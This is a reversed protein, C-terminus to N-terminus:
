ASCNTIRRPPRSRSMRVTSTRTMRYSWGVRNTPHRRPTLRAPRATRAAASRYSNQRTAAEGRAYELDGMLDGAASSVSNRRMVGRFSPVAIALLVSLVTITVMLELISFGAGHRRGM